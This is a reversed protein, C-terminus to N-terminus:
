KKDRLITEVALLANEAIRDPEVGLWTDRFRGLSDRGGGTLVLVCGCHARRAMVMENKGMDGIVWCQRVDLDYRSVCADIMGTRPKKCACGDLDTHPCCLIEDVLGSFQALIRLEAARYDEMSLLGKGIRSQNTLILNYYGGSKALRLADVAFPYPEFDRIDGVADGGLTGQLDWFIAKHM